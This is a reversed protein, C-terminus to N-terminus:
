EENQQKGAADIEVIHILDDGRLGAAPNLMMCFVQGHEKDLQKEYETKEREEEVRHEELGIICFFASIFGILYDRELASREPDTEEDEETGGRHFMEVLLYIQSWSQKETASM